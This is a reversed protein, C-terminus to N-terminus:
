CPFHHGRTDGDGLSKGLIGVLVQFALVRPLFMYGGSDGGGQSRHLGELPAGIPRSICCGCLQM